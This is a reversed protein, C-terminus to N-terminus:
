GGAEMKLEELAEYENGAGQQDNKTTSLNFNNYQKYYVIDLFQVQSCFILNIRVLPASKFLLYTSCLAHTSTGKGKLSPPPLPSTNCIHVHFHIRM